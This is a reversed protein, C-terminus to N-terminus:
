STSLTVSLRNARSAPDSLEIRGMPTTWDMRVRALKAGSGAKMLDRQVTGHAGTLADLRAVIDDFADITVLYRISILRGDRFKYLVHDATLRDDMPVPHRPGDGDAPGYVYTCAIVGAQTEAPTIAMDLRAAKPDDSCVPSVATQAQGPFPQAKWQALTMGLEAGKFELPSAQAQLPHARIPQAPSQAQAGAAMLASGAALAALAAQALKAM